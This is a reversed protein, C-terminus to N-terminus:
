SILLLKLIMVRLNNCSTELDSMMGTTCTNLLLEPKIELRNQILLFYWPKIELRKWILLSVHGYLNVDDFDNECAQKSGKSSFRSVGFLERWSWGTKWSTPRKNLFFLFVWPLGKPLRWFFIWLLFLLVSIGDWRVLCYPVTICVRNAGFSGRLFKAKGSFLVRYSLNTFAKTKLPNTVFGISVTPSSTCWAFESQPTTLLSGSTSSRMLFHNLTWGAITFVPVSM